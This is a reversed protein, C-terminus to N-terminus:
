KTLLNKFNEAILIDEWAKIYNETLIVGNTALLPNIVILTKGNEEIQKIINRKMLINVLKLVNDKHGKLINMLDKKVRCVQQINEGYLIRGYMDANALLIYVKKFEANGLSNLYKYITNKDQHKRFYIENDKLVLDNGMTISMELYKNNKNTNCTRSNTFHCTGDKIKDKMNDSASGIYLNNISNDCETKTRRSKHLAFMKKNSLDLGLFVHCMLRSVTIRKAAGEKIYGVSYTLNGSGDKSETGKHWNFIPTWVFGDERIKINYFDVIKM